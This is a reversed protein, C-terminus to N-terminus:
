VHFVIDDLLGSRNAVCIRARRLVNQVFNRFTDATINNIKEHINEKLQRIITIDIAYVKSKQVNQAVHPRTNDHHIIVKNRNLLGARKASTAERLKELRACHMAMIIAKLNFKETQPSSFFGASSLDPSYPPR